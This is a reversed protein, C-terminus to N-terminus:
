NRLGGRRPAMAGDFSRATGIPPETALRVKIIESDINWIPAVWVISILPIPAYWDGLDMASVVGLTRGHHDFVVSGSAGFWGFMNSIIMGREVNAVHGRITLLEHRGPFGAYTIRAGILNQAGKKPLYRAATRTELKPVLILALDNDHNRYIVRGVVLEDASADIMMTSFDEVVHAATMVVHRGRMIMYTGSGHGDLSPRIVKVAAARAQKEVLTLESSEFVLSVEQSAAAAALNNSDSIGPYQSICSIMAVSAIIIGIIKSWRL